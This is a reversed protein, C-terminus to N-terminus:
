IWTASPLSLYSPLLSKIVADCYTCMYLRYTFHVYTCCVSNPSGLVSCVSMFTLTEREQLFYGFTALRSLKFFWFM